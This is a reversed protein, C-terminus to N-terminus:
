DLTGFWKRMLDQYVGSEKLDLLARNLAEREASGQPLAIGYNESRFVRDLLRAQGFGDHAVYYALIPGDFVVAEIDASEFAELLAAFSPYTRHSIGRADLFGSATSGETTAVKRGDLDDLSDISGTIAEVTLTATINAVFISVIFLSSIVMLVALFRGMVSHPQREEFGGNVVLNLAWWFSPFLADKAPRDFYPQKKREFVWMLLGLLFLIAFAAMIALLLDMNFVARWIGASSGAGSVMIQLGSEFIPQSFDLVAERASTISINAVAGDFQDAAVAELMEPFTEAYSYEVSRGLGAALLNMLDISFGTPVGKELFSFPPRDITNFRM